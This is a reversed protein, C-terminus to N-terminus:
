PTPPDGPYIQGYIEWAPAHGTILQFYTLGAYGGAGTYWIVITDGPEPLAAVGSLKGEWTGGDNVLRMTGWQVGTGVALNPNGWVDISWTGTATGTVRPDNTVDICEVALDRVHTTGDPDIKWDPDLGPCADTGTVVTVPGYSAATPTATATATPAETQTPTPAPVPASPVSTPTPSAPLPTPSAGAACGALLLTVALGALLRAAMGSENMEM